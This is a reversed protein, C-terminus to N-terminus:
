ESLQGDFHEEESLAIKKNLHVTGDKHEAPSYITYFKLKEDDSINLVNHKSGAPVIVTDGDQVEYQTDNIIVLGQGAEFRFFQDHEEHVDAGSDEKPELSMLVLQSFKSTYLVKRFNENALTEKEINVQYGKKM